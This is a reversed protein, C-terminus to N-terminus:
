GTQHSHLNTYDSHLVTLFNRLFSFISNGYSGAIGGGPLARSFVMIQFSVHVGISEAASNVIVLVHFGGLHESVSSLIYLSLTHTHTHTHTHICWPINSLWLFPHSLTIQLLM